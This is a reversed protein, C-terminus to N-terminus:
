LFLPHLCLTSDKFACGGLIENRQHLFCSSQHNLLIRETRPNFEQNEKYEIIEKMKKFEILSLMNQSTKIKKKVTHWINGSHEGGAKGVWHLGCTLQTVSTCTRKRHKM